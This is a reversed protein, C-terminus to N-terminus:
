LDDHVDAVTGRRPSRSAVGRMAGGGGIGGRPSNSLTRRVAPRRAGGADGSDSGSGSGSRSGSDDSSESLQSPLRRGM